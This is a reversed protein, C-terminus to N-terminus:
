SGQARRLSQAARRARRARRARPACLLLPLTQGGHALRPRPLRPAHVRPLVARPAIRASLRPAARRAPRPQAGAARRGAHVAREGDDGVVGPVQDPLHAQPAVLAVTLAARAGAAPTRARVQAAHRGLHVHRLRRHPHRVCEQAPQRAHHGAPRHGRADHRALGRLPRGAWRRGRLRGQEPAAEDLRAGTRAAPDCLRLQSQAEARGASSRRHVDGGLVLHAAQQTPM